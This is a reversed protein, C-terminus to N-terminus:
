SDSRARMTEASLPTALRPHVDESRKSGSFPAGALSQRAAEAVDPDGAKGEELLDFDSGTLSGNVSPEFSPETEPDAGRPGSGSAGGDPNSAPSEPDSPDSSWREGHTEPGSVPKRFVETLYFNRTGSRRRDRERIEGIEELRRLSTWVTSPALNAEQAITRISPYANEGNKDAHSALVLLVLRDAHKARSRKLVMDYAQWSM